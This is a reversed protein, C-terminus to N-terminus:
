QIEIDSYCTMERVRNSERIWWPFSVDNIFNFCVHLMYFWNISASSLLTTDYAWISELKLFVHSVVWSAMRGQFATDYLVTCLMVKRICCKFSHRSRTQSVVPLTTKSTVNNLIILKNQITCLRVWWDHNSYTDNFYLIGLITSCAVSCHKLHIYCNIDEISIYIYYPCHRSKTNEVFM